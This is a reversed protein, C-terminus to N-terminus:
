VSSMCAVITQGTISFAACLSSNDHRHRLSSQSKEAVIESGANKNSQESLSQVHKLIDKAQEKAANIPHTLLKIGCNPM